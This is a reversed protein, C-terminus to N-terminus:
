LESSSLEEVRERINYRTVEASDGYARVTGSLFYSSFAKQPLNHKQFMKTFVTMAQVTNGYLFYKNRKMTGPDKIQLPRRIPTFLRDALITSCLEGGALLLRRKGVLDCMM